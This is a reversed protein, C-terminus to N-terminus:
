ARCLSSLNTVWLDQRRMHRECHITPIHDWLYVRTMLTLRSAFKACNLTDNIFPRAKAPVMTSISLPLWFAIKLTLNTGLQQHTGAWPQDTPIVGWLCQKLIFAVWLTQAKALSHLTSAAPHRRPQNKSLLLLSRPEATESPRDTPLQCHIM